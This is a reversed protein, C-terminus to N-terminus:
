HDELAWLEQRKERYTACLPPDEPSSALRRELELVDGELQGRVADRRWTAGQTYDCCFLRARVKGVDWWRRGSAFARRQGWWALWFERFSAMFGVDELLSNNIHWYAPGPRESCDEEVWVYTFTVDDDRCHDHWVDVLSHYDVIERLVGMAAQSTEVCSRDRDELTTNFDRGLVLSEHPDLTSLFASAAGDLYYLAGVPEPGSREADAM